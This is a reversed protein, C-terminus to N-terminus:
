IILLKNNKGWIVMSHANRYKVKMIFVDKDKLSIKKNPLHKPLEYGWFLDNDPVIHNTRQPSMDTRCAVRSWM